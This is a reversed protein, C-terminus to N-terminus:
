ARRTGESEGTAAARRLRDAVAAGIGIEPPAVALVVDIAAHDADRLSAYLVRAYEDADAPVALVTAAGPLGDPVKTALIGVRRGEDVLERARRPLAALDAHLEVTAMPAYHSALTGPARPSSADGAEFRHGTAEEIQERPLGGPRLLVPRTGSWDVVTSEVGVRTPGDDLVLDVDAGLDSRVDAATTPSVRGFRNASPAAIGGGFARLLALASRQAPVRLGVTDQGGTVADLVGPRRRLVLTVPGPWHQEALARAGPAVDVAWEDLQTADALHVIVPHTAPRGKVEYLRALARPSSADAGLGYVTETPFAVLGGARLVEVAQEIERAAVSM